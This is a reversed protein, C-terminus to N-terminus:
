ETAPDANQLESLVFTDPKGHAGSVTRHNSGAPSGESFHVQTESVPDDPRSPAGRIIILNFTIGVSHLAMASVPYSLTSQTAFAALELISAVTYIMGSEVINRMSRTLMSEPQNPFFDSSRYKKSQQEVGWIRYVIVSTTFINTSITLAWFGLGWPLVNGSNTQGFVVSRLLVLLGIQCTLTGLWLVIPLGIMRWSKSWIFWCRYILIADGTLTQVGVCFAKTFSEWGSGNKFVHEPGGPGDYSVFAELITNFILALDLTSNVFLIASVAVVIWNIRSRPRRKGSRTTLLVRGAIGLTVIYIGYLVCSVFIGALEAAPLSIAM